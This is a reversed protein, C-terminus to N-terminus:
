VSWCWFWSKKALDALFDAARNGDHFIHLNFAWHIPKLLLHWYNFFLRAWIFQTYTPKQIHCHLVKSYASLSVWYFLIMDFKLLWINFHLRRNLLSSISVLKLGEKKLNLIIFSGVIKPKKIIIRGYWFSFLLLLFISASILFYTFFYRFPM